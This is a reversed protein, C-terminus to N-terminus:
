QDPEYTSRSKPTEFWEIRSTKVGIWRMKADVIEWLWKSLNESTPVFDVILFGELYEKDPGDLMNDTVFRQAVAKTTGPVVVDTMLIDDFMGSNPVGSSVLKTMNILAQDRAQTVLSYYLPDNRDIIFKHDVYDDLFNKLWGIHKFDTVMAQPNLQEAELFVHVLGEHGHLHRCKTKTDGRACYEAELKQVWVRHGYCFSFQKDIKWM